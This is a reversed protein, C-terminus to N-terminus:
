SEEVPDHSVKEGASVQKRIDQIEWSIQNFAWATRNSRMFIEKYRERWDELANVNDGNDKAQDFLQDIRKNLTKECHLVNKAEEIM